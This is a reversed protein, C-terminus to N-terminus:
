KDKKFGFSLRNFTLERGMWQAFVQDLAMHAYVDLKYCLSMHFMPTGYSHEYGAATLERFEELMDQSNLHFVYADGLEGMGIIHAKFEKGEDLLRFPETIDRKDFMMTVHLDYKDSPAVGAEVLATYVDEVMDDRLSVQVYSYDTEM